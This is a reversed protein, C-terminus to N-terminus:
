MNLLLYYLEIFEFPQVEILQNKSDKNKSKM